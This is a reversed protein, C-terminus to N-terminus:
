DLDEIVNELIIVPNERNDINVEAVDIRWNWSDYQPRHLLFLSVAKRLRKQKIYGVAEVPTGFKYSRRTKVEVFVLERDKQVILDIEGIQRYGHLRVNQAVLKYGVKLYEQLALQEGRKGLSSNELHNGDTKM